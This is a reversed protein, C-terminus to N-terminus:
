TDAPNLQDYFSDGNAGQATLIGRVSKQPAVGGEARFSVEVRYFRSQEFRLPLRWCVCTNNAGTAEIVLGPRAAPGGEGDIQFVPESAAPPHWFSWAQTDLMLDDFRNM